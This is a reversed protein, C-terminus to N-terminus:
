RILDNGNLSQVHSDGLKSLFCVSNEKHSVYLPHFNNDGILSSLALQADGANSYDSCVVSLSSSSSFSSLRATDITSVNFSDSLSHVLTKHEGFM